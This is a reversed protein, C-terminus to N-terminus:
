APADAATRPDARLWTMPRARGESCLIWRDNDSLVQLEPFPFPDRSTTRIETVDFLERADTLLRAM